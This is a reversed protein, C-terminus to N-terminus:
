ATSRPTFIRDFRPPDVLVRVATRLPNASGPPRAPPECPPLDTSGPAPIAPKAAAEERRLRDYGAVTERHIGVERAIRRYSWGRGLLTVITDIMAMKLQNAM